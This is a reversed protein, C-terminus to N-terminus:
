YINVRSNRVIGGGGLLKETEEGREIISRRRHRVAVELKKTMGGSSFKRYAGAEKGEKRRQELRIRSSHIKLSIDQDFQVICM